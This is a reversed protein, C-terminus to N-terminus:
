ITRDKVFANQKGEDPLFVLMGEDMDRNVSSDIFGLRRLFREILDPSDNMIFLDVEPPLM